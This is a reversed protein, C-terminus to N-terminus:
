NISESQNRIPPKEVPIDKGNIYMNNNEWQVETLGSPLPEFEIDGFLDCYTFSLVKLSDPFKFKVKNININYPAFNEGLYSISLTKINQPIKLDPLHMPCSNISLHIFNELEELAKISKDTIDCYINGELTLSELSKPFRDLKWFEICDSYEFTTLCVTMSVIKDFIGDHEKSMEFLMRPNCYIPECSKEDGNDYSKDFEIYCLEKLDSNEIWVGM